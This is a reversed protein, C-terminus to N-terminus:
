TKSRATPSDPLSNTDGISSSRTTTLRDLASTIRQALTSANRDDEIM